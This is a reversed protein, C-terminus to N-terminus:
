KKKHKPKFVNIHKPNAPWVRMDKDWSMDYILLFSNDNPWDWRPIRPFRYPNIFVQGGYVKMVPHGYMWMVLTDRDETINTKLWYPTNIELLKKLMASDSILPGRHINDDHVQWATDQANITMYILLVICTYLIRM